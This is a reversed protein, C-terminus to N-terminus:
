IAEWHQLDNDNLMGTYMYITQWNLVGKGQDPITVKTDSQSYWDVRGLVKRKPPVAHAITNIKLVTESEVTITKYGITTAQLNFNHIIKTM